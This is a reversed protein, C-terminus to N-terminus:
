AAKAARVLALNEEVTDKATIARLVVHDIAGEWARLAAAIGQADQAAIATEVPKIGMREFHAAYAPVGAYRGGEDQLRDHAAAGLAVRVYAYLKPAPRGAARAGERVWDAARRAYEPTLWNFLVGDAVEGALQCMKPGLAAVVLRTRLQGRLAAVGERV